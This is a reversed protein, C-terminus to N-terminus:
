ALHVRDWKVTIDAAAAGRNYIGVAKSGGALERLWIEQDGSKWVQKGQMGGKDQDIAIV